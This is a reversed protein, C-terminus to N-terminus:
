RDRKIRRGFGGFGLTVSHINGTIGAYKKEYQPLVFSYRLRLFSYNEEHMAVVPGRPRGIKLDYHIGATFAPKFALETKKLFPDKDLDHETPSVDPFSIGAFPALKSHKTDLLVYGLSAEPLFIRVQSRRPWTGGNYGIDKKTLSFGIYDRLYLLWRKYYIDFAIGIPINNTYLNHLEKTFLGYGSFFEFTFAWNSPKYVQRINERVFKEYKSGPYAQLFRDALLNVSDTSIYGTDEVKILCKLNLLLFDKDAQALPAQEIFSSVVDFSDITKGTIKPILLDAEPQIKRHYIFKRRRAPPGSLSLLPAYDSVWYDILWNEYPYFIIYDDENIAGHLYERIEKVKEYDGALLKELLLKRGNNILVSNSDKYNLIESRVPDQAQASCIALSLFSCFLIKISFRFVNKM